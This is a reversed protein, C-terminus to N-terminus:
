IAFFRGKGMSRKLFFAVFERAKGNRGKGFAGFHAVIFGCGLINAQM